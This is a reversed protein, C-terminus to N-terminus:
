YRKKSSPVLIEQFPNKLAFLFISLLLLKTLNTFLVSWEFAMSGVVSMKAFYAFPFELYNLWLYAVALVLFEKRKIFLFFPLVWLCFQPSYFQLALIFGLLAVATGAILSKFSEDVFFLPLFAFLLQMIRSFSSANVINLGLLFNLTNYLSEGNLERVLHFKFPSIFGDMGGFSITILSFFLLPLLIVALSKVAVSIRRRQYIWKLLALTPFLLYGKFAIALGWFLCGLILRDKKFMLLSALTLAMLCIEFRCITFYLVAPSIFLILIRNSFHKFGVLGVAILMLFTFVIWLYVFKEFSDGSLFRVLAFVLNPLLLYESFVNKYLVGAHIWRAEEYYVKLDFTDILLPVMSNKFIEIPLFTLIIGIFLLFLMILLKLSFKSDVCDDLMRDNQETLM